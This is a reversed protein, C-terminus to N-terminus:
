KKTEEPPKPQEEKGNLGADPEAAPDRDPATQTTPPAKKKFISDSARHLVYCLVLLAVIFWVVDPVSNIFRFLRTLPLPERQPTPEAPTQITVLEMMQQEMRRVEAEARREAAHAEAVARAAAINAVAAAGPTEANAPKKARPKRPKKPKPEPPPPAGDEHPTLWFDDSSKVPESPPDPPKDPQKKKRPM